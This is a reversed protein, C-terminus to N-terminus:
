GQRATGPGEQGRRARGHRVAGLGVPGRGAGGSKWEEIPLYYRCDQGPEPAFYTQRREGPEAVARHCMPSLCCKKVTWVCLSLDPM